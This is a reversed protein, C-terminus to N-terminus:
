RIITFRRTIQNNSTSLIIYYTGVAYKRTDINLTNSHAIVENDIINLVENGLIDVIKLNTFTDEILSYSINIFDNTPNPYPTNLNFLDAGEVFRNGGEICINDISLKSPEFEFYYRDDGIIKSDRFEIDSYNNNGLTVKIKINDLLKDNMDNVTFLLPIIRKNNEIYSNKEISTIINKDVVLETEFEFSGNIVLNEPNSFYIPLNVIDGTKATINDSSLEFYNTGKVTAKIPISINNCLADINLAADYIADPPGGLFNITIIKEENTGLNNILNPSVEFINDDITLKLNEIINGNNIISFTQSHSINSEVNIFSIENLKSEIKSNRFIGLLTIISIGNNLESNTQIELYANDEQIQLPNYSITLFISEDSRITENGSWDLLEFNNKDEGKIDIKNIILDAGGINKIEITTDKSVNNCYIEGFDIFSISNLLPKADRLDVSLTITKSEGCYDILVFDEEYLLNDAGGKFKVFVNTSDNANLEKNTIALIEFLNNNSISKFDIYEKISGNNFVKFESNLEKNKELNKFNLRSTFNIESNFKYGKVIYQFTNSSNYISNTTFNITDIIEGVDTGIYEFTFVLDDGSIINNNNTIKFQNNTSSIDLINLNGMGFNTIKVEKFNDSDCIVSDLNYNYNVSIAPSVGEGFIIFDFPSCANETYIQILVQSYELDKPSFDFDISYIEDAEIVSDKVILSINENPKIIKIDTVKISENSFNHLINKTFTQSSNFNIIGLDIYSTLKEIEDNIVNYKLNFSFTDKNSFLHIIHNYEGLDKNAITINLDTNQKSLLINNSLNITVNKNNSVSISDIIINKINNNYLYNTILTDIPINVCIDPLQIDKLNLQKDIIKLRNLYLIDNSFNYDKYKSLDRIILKRSLENTILYNKNLDYTSNFSSNIEFEENLNLSIDCISLKNSNKFYYLDNEFDYEIDDFPTPSILDSEKSVSYNGQFLNLKYIHLNNNDAIFISDGSNSWTIRQVKTNFTNISFINDLNSLNTLKVNNLADVSVLLNKTPNFSLIDISSNSTSIKTTFKKDNGLDNYFFINGQETGFAIQNSLYNWDVSVINEPVPDLSIPINSSQPDFILPVNNNNRIVAIQSNNKSWSLLNTNNLSSAIIGFDELNEIKLNNLKNDTTTYAIFSNDPSSKILTSKDTKITFDKINFQKYDTEKFRIRFDIDGENLEPVRWKLSNSNINEIINYWENQYKYDISIMESPSLGLIEFNVTDGCYFNNGNLVNLNVQKEIYSYEGLEIPIIYNDCETSLTINTSYYKNELPTIGIILKTTADKFITNINSKIKFEPNSSKISLINIDKLIAKLDTSFLIENNLNFTKISHQKPLISLISNELNSHRYEFDYDYLPSQVINGKIIDSCLNTTWNIKYYELNKLFSKLYSSLLLHRNNFKNNDLYYGNVMNQYILNKNSSLYIIHLKINNEDFFEKIRNYDGSSQKDTILIYDENQTFINQVSLPSNFFLENLNSSGYYSLLSLSTNLKDQNNTKFTNVFSNQNYTILGLSDENNMDNIFSKIIDQVKSSNKKMSSSVDVMFYANINKSQKSLKTYVANEVLDSQEFLFISDLNFPRNNFKYYNAEINPYNTVNISDIYINSYVTISLFCLIIFLKKM